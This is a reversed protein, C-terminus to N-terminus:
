NVSASQLQSEKIQPNGNEVHIVDGICEINDDNVIIGGGDRCGFIKRGHAISYETMKSEVSEIQNIHPLFVFDVLDLASLDNLNHSPTEGCIHTMSIEPTMLIAGASVGILVGGNAVYEKLLSIFGRKRLWYLFNYTSGGSLHVADCAFLENAKDPEYEAELEFYVSLNAGFSKYYNQQKKFWTREPDISSPIYGVTPHPKGILNFLQEDMKASQNIQQDSYFALKRHM